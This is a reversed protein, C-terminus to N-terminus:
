PEFLPKVTLTYVLISIRLLNEHICALVAFIESQFVTAFRGLLFALEMRPKFGYVGTGTGKGSKIIYM